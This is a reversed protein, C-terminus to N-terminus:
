KINTLCRVHIDDYNVRIDGSLLLSIGGSYEEKDTQIVVKGDVLLNLGEESATVSIKFDKKATNVKGLLIGNTDNNRILCLEVSDNAIPILKISLCDNNNSIGFKIQAFAGQKWEKISCNIDFSYNEWKNDGVRIECDAKATAEGILSNANACVPEADASVFWNGGVKKWQQFNGLDCGDFDDYFIDTFYIESASPVKYKSGMLMIKQLAVNNSHNSLTLTHSGKDLYTSTGRVWHWKKYVPDNGLTNDVGQDIQVFVANTCPDDWLTYGWLTYRGNAPAYFHYIAFGDGKVFEAEEEGADWKRNRWGQNVDPGIRFGEEGDEGVFDIECPWVIKHPKSVDILINGNEKEFRVSSAILLMLLLVIITLILLKKM